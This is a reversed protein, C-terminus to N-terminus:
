PDFRSFSQRVRNTIKNNSNDCDTVKVSCEKEFISRNTRFIKNAIAKATDSCDAEIELTYSTTETVRVKFTKRKSKPFYLGQKMYYIMAADVLRIVPM